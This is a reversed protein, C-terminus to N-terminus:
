NPTGMIPALQSNEFITRIDGFDIGTIKLSKPLRQGNYVSSWISSGMEQINEILTDINGHTFCSILNLGIPSWKKNLDSCQLFFALEKQVQELKREDFTIKSSPFLEAIKRKATKIKKINLINKLWNGKMNRLAVIIQWSEELSEEPFNKDLSFNKFKTDAIEKIKLLDRNLERLAANLNSVSVPANKKRTTKLSVHKAEGLKNFTEIIDIENIQLLDDFINSSLFLEIKFKSKLYTRCKRSKELDRLTEILLELDEESNEFADLNTKPDLLKELHRLPFKM